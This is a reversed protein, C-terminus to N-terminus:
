LERNILIEKMRGIVADLKKGEITIKGEAHDIIMKQNVLEAKSIGELRFSEVDYFTMFRGHIAEGCVMLRSDTVAIGVHWPKWSDEWQENVGFTDAVMSFKVFEEPLLREEIAQFAKEYQKLDAKQRKKAYQLMEGATRMQVQDDRSSLVAIERETYKREKSNYYFGAIEFTLGLGTLLGLCFERARFDEIFSLIQFQGELIVIVVCILGLMFYTNLHKAKRKKEQDSLEILMSVNEKSDNEPVSREGNLLESISVGLEESIIPLMALDPMTKGNEWRSISRNSVGLKEALQEQTMKKEERRLTAIFKGIKEQNMM